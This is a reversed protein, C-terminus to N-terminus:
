LDKLDYVKVAESGDRSYIGLLVKRGYCNSSKLLLPLLVVVHPAEDRLSKSILPEMSTLWTRMSPIFSMSNFVKFDGLVRMLPVDSDRRAVYVAGDRTSVSYLEPPNIIERLEPPKGISILYQMLRLLLSPVCNLSIDFGECSESFFQDVFRGCATLGNSQIFEVLQRTYEVEDRRTLGFKLALGEIPGGMLERLVCNRSAAKGLLAAAETLYGRSILSGLEILEENIEGGRIMGLGTLTPMLARVNSKSLGRERFYNSAIANYPHGPSAGSEYAYKAFDLLRSLPFRIYWNRFECQEEALRSRIFALADEMAKFEKSILGDEVLILDGKREIILRM